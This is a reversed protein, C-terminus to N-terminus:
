DDGKAARAKAASATKNVGLHQRIHAMAEEHEGKGFVHQTSDHYMGDGHHYDHNVSLGGNSAREISMRRLKKVARKQHDARNVGASVSGDAAKPTAM